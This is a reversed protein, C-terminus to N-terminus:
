RSPSGGDTGQEAATVSQKNFVYDQKQINVAYSVPDLDTIQFAGNSDTTASPALRGGAAAATPDSPAIQVVANPLPIAGQVDVVTGGLKASPIAIDVNQDGSLTVQQSRTSGGLVNAMTMVNYTGAALGEMRYSGGEDTQSSAQRGGGGILNAVVTVGPLPQSGRTVRGSLAYGSDFVIEGDVVPQGDPM